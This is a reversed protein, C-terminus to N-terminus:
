RKVQAPVLDMLVLDAPIDRATHWMSGSRGQDLNFWPLGRADDDPYLAWRDGTSESRYIRGPQYQPAAAKVETRNFARCFGLTREVIESTECDDAFSAVLDLLDAVALAVAPTFRGALVGAAGGLANEVGLTYVRDRDPEDSRWYPNDGMESHMEAVDARITEATARLVASPVPVATM